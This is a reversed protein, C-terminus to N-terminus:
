VMDLNEPTFLGAIGSAVTIVAGTVTKGNKFIRLLTNM